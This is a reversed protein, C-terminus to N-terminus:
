KVGLLKLRREVEKLVRKVETMKTFDAKFLEIADLLGKETTIGEICLISKKSLERITEKNKLLQIYETETLDTKNIHKIKVLEKQDLHQAAKEWYSNLVTKMIPKIKTSLHNKAESINITLDYTLFPRLERNRPLDTDNIIRYKSGKPIDRKILVNIKELNTQPFSMLGLTEGKKYIVIKRKM